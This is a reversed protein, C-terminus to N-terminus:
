IEERVKWMAEVVPTGLESSATSEMVDVVAMVEDEAKLEAEETLPGDGGMM